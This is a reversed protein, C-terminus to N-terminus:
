EGQPTAGYQYHRWQRRTAFEVQHGDALADRVMAAEKRTRRRGQPDLRLM